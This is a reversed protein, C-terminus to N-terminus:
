EVPNASRGVSRGVHQSDNDSSHIPSVLAERTCVLGFSLLFKFFFSGSVSISFNVLNDSRIMCLIESFETTFTTCKIKTAFGLVNIILFM